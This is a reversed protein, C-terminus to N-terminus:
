NRVATIVFTAIDRCGIVCNEELGILCIKGFGIAIKGLLLPADKLALSLNGLLLSTDGLALSMLVAHISLFNVHIFHQMCFTTARHFKESDDHTM